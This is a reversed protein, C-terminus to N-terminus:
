KIIPAQGQTAAQLRSVLTPWDVKRRFGVVQIRPLGAGAVIIYGDGASSIGDMTCVNDKLKCGIGIQAYGFDDFFKLVQTQLGGVLGSGGVSSIDNVARQSIRRKGKWGRDTELRADFAVPSWDVLRLKDIRGDLRGTISGFGFVKTMPELDIDQIRVDASLTPATGFPREMSLRQLDISGGFLSMQLGGDMTLIDARLRASPIKGSVSGSFPPWGLRQSLSGLDLSDMSLGFEVKAGTAQQPAQWNLHDLVLRGKLADIAVPQGLRLQGDSSSLPFNAPGLGIGFLAGSQWGLRSSLAPGSGTWRLDGDIGAFTFRAKTDVANVQDFQSELATLNGDHMQLRGRLKGTLQLDSFGAPALFGSLYRDRALGLDGLALSMDLDAVAAQADLVAMGNAVLVGPDRWQIEPLQWPTGERHQALVHIAVPTRPFVAYFSDFLLEGGTVTVQSDVTRMKAQQRYKLQLRAKIAAAALLGDPTELSVGVLGLDTDVGFPGAKPSLVDIRGDLRGATWRGDQWLGALFAKLWAVPVSQLLLTAKDPSASSSRYSIRSTGIGLSAATAEPAFDVVLRQWGSGDASVRGACQWGGGSARVLPCQWDIKRTRYAISPFDLVDARLRLTGSPAGDPWDLSLQVGQLTGAATVVKDIRAAMLKAHVPWAACLALGLLLKFSSSSIRM